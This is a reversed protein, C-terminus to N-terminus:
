KLILDFSYIKKKSKNVSEIVVSDLDVKYIQTLEEEKIQIDLFTYKKKLNKLEKENIVVLIWILKEM